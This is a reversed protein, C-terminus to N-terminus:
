SQSVSEPKSTLKLNGLAQQLDRISADITKHHCGIKIVPVIGMLSNTLFVAPADILTVMSLDKEDVKLHLSPALVEMVLSRMVGAVGCRHLSPTLLTDGNCLFLNSQTGEVLYGQTDLMLGEFINTDYWESRAMVQELRNLHKIGALRPNVALRNHCIRVAVGDRMSLTPYTIPHLAVIHDSGAHQGARYGRGSYGRTVIIKLVHYTNDDVPIGLLLCDISQQLLTIDCTIALRHCSAMLRQMHRELFQPQAGHVAITEFLGDGYALGRNFVDITHSSVGNILVHGAASM